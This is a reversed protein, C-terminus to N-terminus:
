PKLTFWVTLWFMSKNQLLLTTQDMLVHLVLSLDFVPLLTVHNANYASLLAPDKPFKAFLCLSPKNIVTLVELIYMIYYSTKGSGTPTITLLNIGDLSQCVGKIQCNHPEYQLQTEKLIQQCLAHGTPSGWRFPESM